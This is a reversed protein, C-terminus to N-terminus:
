FLFVERTNAEHKRELCGEEEVEKEHWVDGFFLLWGAM